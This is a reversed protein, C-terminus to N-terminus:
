DALRIQEEQNLALLTQIQTYCTFFSKLSPEFYRFALTPHYLHCTLISNQLVQFIFFQTNM